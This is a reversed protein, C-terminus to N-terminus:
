CVFTILCTILALNQVFIYEKSELFLPTSEMFLVPALYARFCMVQVLIWINSCTMACRAQINTKQLFSALVLYGVCKIFSYTTYRRLFIVNFLMVLFYSTPYKDAVISHRRSGIGNGTSVNNVTVITSETVPIYLTLLPPYIVEKM